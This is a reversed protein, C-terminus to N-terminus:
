CGALKTNFRFSYIGQSRWWSDRGKTVPFSFITVGVPTRVLEDHLIGSCSTVSFMWVCFFYYTEVKQYKFRSPVSLVHSPNFFQLPGLSQNSGKSSMRNFSSEDFSDREIMMLNILRQGSDHSPPFFHFRFPSLSPSLSLTGQGDEDLKWKMMMPNMNLGEMGKAEVDFLSLGWFTEEMECKCLEENLKLASLDFTMSCFIYYIDKKIYSKRNLFGMFIVNILLHSPQIGPIIFLNDLYWLKIM